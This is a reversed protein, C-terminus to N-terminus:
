YLTIYLKFSFTEQTCKISVTVMDNEIKIPILM